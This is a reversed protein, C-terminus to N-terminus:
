PAETPEEPKGGAVSISLANADLLRAAVQDVATCSVDSFLKARTELYDAGLDESQMMGLMSALSGTSDIMLPLRGIIFQKTEECRKQGIGHQQVDSLLERIRAVADSAQANRTAARIVLINAAERLSLQTGVDYVLGEERRLVDGLVSHLVGGGLAAQLVYSAYFDEHERAVWPLAMRISSQPLPMEVMIPASVQQLKATPTPTYDLTKEPLDAFFVRLLARADRMSLAGTIVAGAREAAIISQQYSRMDDISIADVSGETGLGTTAYPHGAFLKRQLADMARYDPSQQASILGAKHQRKVREFADTDFRPRALADALLKLADPVHTRLCRLSVTLDDSGASISLEIAKEALAQKFALADRTGAGELLMSAAIVARGEKGQPDTASGGGKFRLQMSVVPLTNDQAVWLIAGSALTRTEIDVEAHAPAATLAVVGFLALLFKRM